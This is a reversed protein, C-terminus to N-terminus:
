KGAAAPRLVHANAWASSGLHWRTNTGRVELRLVEPSELEIDIRVPKSNWRLWESQYLRRGDAHVVFQVREARARVPSVKTKGELDVGVVSQFRNCGKPIAFDLVSPAHVGLGNKFQRRGIRLVNGMASRDFGVPGKHQDLRIPMLDSLHVVTGKARSQRTSPARRPLSRRRWESLGEFSLKPAVMWDQDFFGVRLFTEPSHTRDDFVGYDFWNRNDFPGWGFWNGFRTNIQFIARWTTGACVVVYRDPNLPNPHCFKVGVDKGEYRKGGITVADTEIRIPLAGQVRAAVANMDPSGYLILNSDAVDQETVETDSKIRCPVTYLRKWDSVFREAEDRVVQRTWEDSGTTGYVVLFRSMFADEIPGELGPRKGRPPEDPAIRWRGDEARAFTLRDASPDDIAPLEVDDITVGIQSAGHAPSAAPDISFRAVNKTRIEFEAGGSCEADIEAFELWEDFREVRVWYASAYRLRSARFRARDPRSVRRQRLLWERQEQRLDHSFGGHGAFPLERYTVRGGAAKMKEVMSRTHGVPCTGDLKGHIAFAPVNLLNCAYSAPDLMAEVFSRLRDFPPASGYTWWWERQWVRHDANSANPAIAAIRDPFRAALNWSGTGGMSHGTLYIRGHDIRYDREVDRLVHLFDNEAVFMYDMSGRGHPSVVIAGPIRRAPHGQFPRYWGHGHLNFVLSAPTDPSYGPPIAISYPQLSDDLESRYAKLIVGKRGAFPNRGARVTQLDRRVSKCAQRFRRVARRSLEGRHKPLLARCYDLQTELCGVARALEPPTAGKAEALSKEVRELERCLTKAVVPKRHELERYTEVADAAYAEQEALWGAPEMTAAFVHLRQNYPFRIWELVRQAPLDFAVALLRCTIDETHMSRDDQHWSYRYPAAFATTEGHRPAECWDSFRLTVNEIGDEFGLRMDGEHAGNEASGLVYLRRYQGKPPEIKQGACAFNNNDGDRKSPFVFPVRPWEALEFQDGTTPMFESPYTSGPVNAPHDPCDYNGDRSRSTSSIGDNDFLPTLNMPMGRPQRSTLHTPLWVCGGLLVALAFATWRSQNLM